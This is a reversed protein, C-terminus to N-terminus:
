NRGQLRQLAQFAAQRNEDVPDRQQLITLAVAVSQSVHGIEALSEICAKRARANALKTMQQSITKTVQEKVTKPAGKAIGILSIAADSRVSDDDLSSIM